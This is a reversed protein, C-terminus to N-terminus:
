IGLKLIYLWRASDVFFNEGLSQAYKRQGEFTTAAISSRALVWEGGHVGTASRGTPDGPTAALRWGDAQLVGRWRPIDEAPSHTEALAVVKIAEDM